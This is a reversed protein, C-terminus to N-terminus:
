NGVCYAVPYGNYSSVQASVGADSYFRVRQIEISTATPSGIVTWSGSTYTNGTSPNIPDVIANSDSVYPALCASPFAIPWSITIYPEACYGSYPSPAVAPHGTNCGDLNVTAGKVWQLWKGDAMVTCGAASTSTYLACSTNSAPLDKAVLARFVPTGAAGDPAAFVMNAPENALISTLTGVSTVPSSTVTFISPL